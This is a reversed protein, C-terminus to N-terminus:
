ATHRAPRLLIRQLPRLCGPARTHNEASKRPGTAQVWAGARTAAAADASENMQRYIMEADRRARLISQAASVVQCHPASFSAVFGEFASEGDYWVVIRHEDLLDILLKRVYESVLM